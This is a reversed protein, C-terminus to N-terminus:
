ESGIRFSVYSAANNILCKIIEILKKNSTGKKLRYEIMNGGNLIKQYNSITSIQETSNIHSISEYIDKKTVKDIFGFASKDIDLLYLSIDNYNIASLTFNLKTECSIDDIKARIYKLIKLIIDEYHSEDIAIACEKLGVINM